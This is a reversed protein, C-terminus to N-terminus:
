AVLLKLGKYTKLKEEVGFVPGFRIVPTCEEVTGTAFVPVGKLCSLAVSMEWSRGHILKPEFVSVHSYGCHRIIQCVADGVEVLEDDIYVGHIYNYTHGVLPRCTSRITYVRGPSFGDYSRIM